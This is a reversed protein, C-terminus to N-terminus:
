EYRLAEIPDLQAARWAPYTGFVVTVLTAFGVATLTTQLWPIPAVVGSLQVLVLANVGFGIALGLVLGITCGIASLLLAEIFFQALIQFRTAGIAKRLGIERTREAVSVLMINLIGIGAVVLSVAGILSVILTIGAFFGDITKTIQRKDFTRYETKKKKLAKLAAVVDDETTQLDYGPTLMFRAVSFTSRQVYDDDFTTWPIVFDDSPVAGGLAGKVPANLVGVVTYRREGLRLERGIADEGPALLKKAAAASLVGVAAHAEVDAAEISRGQAISANNFHDAAESGVTLRARDHGIHAFRALTTGPVAADIGPLSARLAALDTLSMQAAAFQAPDRSGDPFVLFWRDSLSGLIGNTAGALGAGLTQISIVAVVGIVLGLATLLSRVRNAFLVTLAESLYAIM